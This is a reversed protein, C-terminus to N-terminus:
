YIHSIKMTDGVAIMCNYSIHGINNNFADKEFIDVSFSEGGVAPCIFNVDVDYGSYSIPGACCFDCLKNVNNINILIQNAKDTQNYIRMSLYAEKAMVVNKEYSAILSKPDFDLIKSHYNNKSFVLRLKYYNKAEFNFSYNGDSDTTTSSLFKFTPNVVGSKIESYYLKVEANSLISNTTMDRVVGKITNEDKKCLTVFVLSSFIILIIILKKM